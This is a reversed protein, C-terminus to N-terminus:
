RSSGHDWGRVEPLPSGDAFSLGAGEVVRGVVTFGRLPTPATALLEYDEGGGLSLSEPVGPTQCAARDLVLAVASASALHAADALLGDSLDIAATADELAPRLDLRPEPDAFAARSAPSPAVGASWDAVAAAARGTPGSLLVLDGPRAGSRGFPRGAGLVTVTVALCPGGTTDGGLIPCRWRRAGAALGAMVADGRTALQDQPLSLAVLCGVPRARAAALDSLAAALAKRGIEEDSLWDARFHVGEVLSDVSLALPQDADLWAVDEGPGRVVGPGATPASQLWRAISSFESSGPEPVDDM